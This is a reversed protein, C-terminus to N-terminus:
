FERLIRPWFKRHLIYTHMYKRHLILKWWLVCIESYVKGFTTTWAWISVHRPWFSFFFFFFFVAVPIQFITEGPSSFDGSFPRFMERQFFFETSHSRSAHRNERPNEYARQYSDRCSLSLSLSLSLPPDTFKVNIEHLNSLTLAPCAQSRLKIRSPATYRAAVTRHFVDRSRREVRTRKGRILHNRSTSRRNNM